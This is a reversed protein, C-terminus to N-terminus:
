GFPLEGFTLCTVEYSLEYSRWSNGINLNKKVPVSFVSILLLYTFM